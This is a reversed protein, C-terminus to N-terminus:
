TGGMTKWIGWEAWNPLLSRHFQYFGLYCVGVSRRLYIKHPRTCFGNLSCPLQESIEGSLLNNYLLQPDIPHTWRLVPYKSEKLSIYIYMHTVEPRKTISRRTRFYCFITIKNLNPPTDPWHTYIYRVWAPIISSYNNSVLRYSININLEGYCTM